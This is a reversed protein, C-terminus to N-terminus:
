IKQKRNVLKLKVQNIKRLIYKKESSQLFFWTIIIFGTGFFYGSISNIETIGFLIIAFLTVYIMILKNKRYINFDIAKYLYLNFIFFFIIPTIMFQLMWGYLGFVPLIFYVIAVNMSYMIFLFFVYVKIRGIPTFVQSFSFMWVSFLTGIFHGPLYNAAEFFDYSYFLPILINRFAIGGFIFPVMAFTIFRFVDNLVSSVEINTRAEAFRPFLYPSLSAFVIGTFLGSWAMNPAYLGLKDIGINNIVIARSAIDTIIRYIGISLGYGAFMILQNLDTKVIKGKKVVETYSILYKDLVHRKSYIHNLILTVILTIVLVIVVGTLKFFYVMPIFLLFSIITSFIRARAIHKVDKFAKLLAFSISNIILIPLSAISILFYKYYKIDGFFYVTLKNSFFLLFGVVIVSVISVIFFYSKLCNLLETRFDDRGKRSALQMVLGDNMGLLTFRTIQQNTFQIQSIIGVGTTGLFLANLKARVLGLIFKVIRVNALYYSNKILNKIEM